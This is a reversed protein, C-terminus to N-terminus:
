DGTLVQLDSVDAWGAKFGLWEEFWDFGTLQRRKILPVVFVCRITVLHATEKRVTRQM